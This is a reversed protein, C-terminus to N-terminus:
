SKLSSEDNDETNNCSSPTLKKKLSLTIGVCAVSVGLALIAVVTSLTGEGFISAVRVPGVYNELALGKASTAAAVYVNKISATANKDADIGGIVTGNQIKVDAGADIYMANGNAGALGRNISHGGLNVVIKADKPVYIMGDKFGIGSGFSGTSDANWDDYVYVIIHSFGEVAPRDEESEYREASNWAEELHTAHYVADNWADEFNDHVSIGWELNDYSYGCVSVTFGGAAVPVATVCLVGTLLFITMLIAFVKKM